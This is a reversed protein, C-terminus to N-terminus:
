YFLSSTGSRVKHCPCIPNICYGFLPNSQKETHPPNKRRKEKAQDTLASDDTRRGSLNLEADLMEATERIAYGVHKKCFWSLNNLNHDCFDNDFEIPRGDLLTIHEDMMRQEYRGHGTRFARLLKM